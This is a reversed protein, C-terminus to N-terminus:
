EREREIERESGRERLERKQQERFVVWYFEV